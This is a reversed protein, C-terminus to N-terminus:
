RVRTQRVAEDDTVAASPTTVTRERLDIEDVELMRRQEAAGLAAIVAGLVALGLHLWNDAENLSLFNWEEDLAFLGFVFVAGYGIALLAGYGISARLSRWALLGLVGLVIHVVNHLPNLEFGLLEDGTAHHSFDDWTEWDTVFFGAVGVAVLVVGTLAALVQAYTLRRAPRTLNTQM